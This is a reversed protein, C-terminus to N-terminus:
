GNIDAVIVRPDAGEKNRTKRVKRAAAGRVRERGDKGYNPLTELPRM